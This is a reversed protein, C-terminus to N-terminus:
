NEGYFGEGLVESSNNVFVFAKDDVSNIIKLLGYYERNQVVCLLMTKDDQSFGGIIPVETVGRQISNYIGTKMDIPHDTIIYVSKRNKGGLLVVDIFKGILLMSLLSYLGIEIGFVITGAVIILGDVIYIVTSFPIKLYQHVIKQPIDMGGTTGGFRLVIGLGFGIMLSGFAVALLVDDTLPSLGYAIDLTEALYIALPFLLSGYVTKVFFRKGFVILGIILFMINLAFIVIAPNIDIIDKLIIGIGSVGGIVLNYPVNFFHFGIGMLLVGITILLYEKVRVKM